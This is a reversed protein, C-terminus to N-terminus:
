CSAGLSCRADKSSDASKMVKVIIAPSIETFEGRDRNEGGRAFVGDYCTFGAPGNGVVWHKPHLSAYCAPGRESSYQQYELGEWPLFRAHRNCM